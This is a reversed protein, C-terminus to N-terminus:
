PSTPTRPTEAMGGTTDVPSTELAAAIGTGSDRGVQVADQNVPASTRAWPRRLRLAQREVLVYSAFAAVLALPLALALLRVSSHHIAPVYHLLRDIIPVHWLYLSYSAIGILALLRLDLARVIRGARLPLVVAGLTLFAAIATLPAAWSDLWAALLWTAASAVLWTDPSSVLGRLWVPRRQEWHPQLLALVMGPVFGHFTALLSYRWIVNPAPNAHWLVISPLAVALLMAVAARHNRRSFRALAWALLPLLIYFHLEVVLSWMPGDVTQATSTSFSEAFLGFRWWQSLSGGHQTLILLLVVVCWYLPLIRVARNRAYSWTDIHEGGFYDRRAFPRFILYGSLAFFLQVGFGGAAIVRHQFPAYASPGFAHAYLWVHSFVVALAAVARLSEVRASRRSGAQVIQTDGGSVPRTRRSTLFRRVPLLASQQATPRVPRSLQGTTPPRTITSARDDAHVVHHRRDAELM